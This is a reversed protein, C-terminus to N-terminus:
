KNYGGTKEFLDDQWKKIDTFEKGGPMGQWYDAGEFLKAADSGGLKQGTENLSQMNAKWPDSGIAGMLDVAQPTKNSPTGYREDMSAQFDFPENLPLQVYNTDEQPFHSMESDIIKDEIAM